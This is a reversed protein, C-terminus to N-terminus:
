DSRLNELGLHIVNSVSVVGGAELVLQNQVTSVCTSPSSRCNSRLYQYYFDECDRKSRRELCIGPLLDLKDIWYRKKQLSYM